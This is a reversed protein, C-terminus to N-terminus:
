QCKGNERSYRWIFRHCTKRKGRCCKGILSNQIGMRRQVEMTSPFEAIFNGSLDYQYVRKSLKGNTTKETIRLIKTGYNNNYKVTCWELNTVINNTKDEDKHNIQPFNNPNPIFAQAVLRHVLKRHSSGDPSCLTVGLYGSGCKFQSLITEKQLRYKGNKFKLVRLVSKVRGLNSVMYVPKYPGSRFLM